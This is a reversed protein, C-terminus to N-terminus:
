VSSLPTNGFSNGLDRGDEAAHVLRLCQSEHERTKEVSSLRRVTRQPSSNSSFRKRSCHLRVPLGFVMLLSARSSRLANRESAYLCGRGGGGLTTIPRADATLPSLLFLCGYSQELVFVGWRPKSLVQELM